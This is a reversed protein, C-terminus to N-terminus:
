YRIFIIQEVQTYFQICPTHAEERAGLWPTHMSYAWLVRSSSSVKLFSPSGPQHRLSEARKWTTPFM